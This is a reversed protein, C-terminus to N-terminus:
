DRKYFDNVAQIAEEKTPFTGLSKHDGKRYARWKGNQRKQVGTFKSNERFIYKKGIDEESYRRYGKHCYIAGTAVSNINQYLLNNEKSFKKVNTIEIVNGNPDIIKYTKESRKSLQKAYESDREITKPDDKFPIGVSSEDFKRYGKGCSFMKGNLVQCLSSVSITTDRSLQSISEFYIINGSPDIIKGGKNRTQNYRMLDISKQSMKKGRMPSDAFEAINYGNKYTDFLKIYSNEIFLIYDWYKEPIICLTKYFFSELGHKNVVNQMYQNSHKNHIFASKHNYLRKNNISSGVYINGCGSLLYIHPENPEPIYGTIPQWQGSNPCLPFIDTTQLNFYKGSSLYTDM